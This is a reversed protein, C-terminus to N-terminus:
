CAQRKIHSYVKNKIWDRGYPKYLKTSPELVLVSIDTLSDIFNLLDVLDYQIDSARPNEQKLRTEYMQVIGDLSDETREYDSYIRSSIERTPQCLVVTHTQAAQAHQM